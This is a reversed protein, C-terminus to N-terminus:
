VGDRAVPGPIKGGEMGRAPPLIQFGAQRMVGLIDAILYSEAIKGERMVYFQGYGINTKDQTAPIGLWDNVFTGTLYGCGSVWEDGEQDTGGIFVYPRWKLDPFSTMLPRMYGTFVAETGLLQNVPESGNWNVDKHMAGDIVDPVNDLGVHNLKQWYDWVLAKNSQNTASM